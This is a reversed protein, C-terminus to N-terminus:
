YEIKANMSNLEFYTIRDNWDSIRYRDICYFQPDAFAPLGLVATLCVLLKKM